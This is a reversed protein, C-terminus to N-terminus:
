NFLSLQRDERIDLRWDGYTYLRETVSQYNGKAAKLSRKETEFVCKFCNPMQYESVFIPHSQAVDIVWDYFEDHNFDSLYSSTGCYPPDCYVVAGDPIAVNRYDGQMVELRQLRELSELSELRELSELDGRADLQAGEALMHMFKRYELRRQNVTPATLM